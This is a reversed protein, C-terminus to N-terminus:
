HIFKIGARFSYNTKFTWMVVGKEPLDMNNHQSGFLIHQGVKLPNICTIGMGRDNIDLLTIIIKNNPPPVEIIQVEINPGEEKVDDGPVLRKRKERQPKM